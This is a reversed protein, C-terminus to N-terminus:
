SPMSSEIELLIIYQVQMNLGGYPPATCYIRDLLIYIYFKTLISNSCKFTRRLLGFINYAKGVIFEYHCHWSM